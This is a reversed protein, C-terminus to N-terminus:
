ARKAREYTRTTRKAKEKKKETTLDPDRRSHLPERLLPGEKFLVVRSHNFVIFIAAVKSDSKNGNYQATPSREAAFKQPTSESEPLASVQSTEVSGFVVKERM